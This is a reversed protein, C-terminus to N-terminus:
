DQFIYNGKEDVTYNLAENTKTWNTYGKLLQKWFTTLSISAKNKNCVSSFTEEKMKMPFIYVPIKKQGNNTAEVACIYLEKIKDDTVPICGITVCNGHIFVDGGPHVKDGLLRDSKNPYNIGLSLYFNSAPNFRDVYYFGEPVQEDGAKRKPGLKGSLACFNYSKIFHYKKESSNRAWLQLEMEQKYGVLLMQMNNISISKEKLMKKLGDEKEEYAAKVRKYKLQETRFDDKCIFSSCLVIILLVSCFTSLMAGEANILISKIMRYKRKITRAILLIGYKENVHQVINNTHYIRIM